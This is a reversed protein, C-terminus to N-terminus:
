GITWGYRTGAPAVHEAPQTRLRSSSWIQWSDPSLMLGGLVAQEAEISSPPVRLAEIAPNGSHKREPFASMASPQETRHGGMM